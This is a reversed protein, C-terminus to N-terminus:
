LDRSVRFGFDIARMSHFDGYRKASRLAFEHKRFNEVVPEDYRTKFAIKVSMVKKTGTLNVLFEPELQFYTYELYSSDPPKKSM